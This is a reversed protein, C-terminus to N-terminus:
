EKKSAKPVPIYRPQQEGGAPLTITPGAPQNQADKMAEREKDIRERDTESEPRPEVYIKTSALTIGAALRDEETSFGAVVTQQRQMQYLAGVVESYSLGLGPEPNEPTPTQAMFRILERLNAESRGQAPKETRWDRYLLRVPKKGSSGEPAAVDEDSAILLRGGWIESQSRSQLRLGDGFLVIRPKDSQVAYVLPEEALLMDIAFRNQGVGVITRTISSDGRELMAEYASIRIDLPGRSALERLAINIKPDSPMRGMMKTADARIGIPEGDNGRAMSILQPTVTVDGVAAGVRVAAWRPVLEASDYMPRVFPAAPKGIARLCWHLEEALVPQKILEEAYRKAFEEPFSSDIRINELLKLFEDPKTVWYRPVKVGVAADNKAKAVAGVDGATIPFRSNIAAQISAARPHSPNDLAIDLSLPDTVVGGSLVRGIDKRGSGSAGPDSYPNIFLPGRAEAVKRTRMSGFPTVPGLRLDTTWLSGGELSSIASGPLPRVRVDFKAEKPAGAVIVGEVIVVAVNTDALVQRPTKSALPGDSLMGGKGIGGRSLEREMTASIAEPYPGGGTGNLGVVVGYGSVLVPEVGRLSTESGITGRLISPVDRVVADVLRPKAPASSCAPLVCAGGVLLLVLLANGGPLRYMRTPLLDAM